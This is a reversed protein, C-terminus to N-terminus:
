VEKEIIEVESEKWYFIATILAGPGIVVIATILGTAVAMANIRATQLIMIYGWILMSLYILICDYHLFLKAGQEVRRSGASEVTANTIPMYTNRFHGKASVAYSLVWFHAIASLLGILLYAQRLVLSRAKKQLQEGGEAIRYLRSLLFHLIAALLPTIQVIVTANQHQSTSRPFLPTSLMATCPLVCGLLMAPVLAGAKNQPVKSAADRDRLRFLVYIPFILGAGFGHWLLGWIAPSITTQNSAFPVLNKM